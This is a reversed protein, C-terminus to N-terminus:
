RRPKHFGGFNTCDRCSPSLCSTRHSEVQPTLLSVVEVEPWLEDVLELFEGWSLGANARVFVVKEARYSMEVRVQHRIEAIALDPGANLRASRKGTATAVIQSGDGCSAPSTAVDVVFGKTPEHGVTCCACCLIVVIVSHAKPM